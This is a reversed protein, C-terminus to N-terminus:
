LKAVLHPLQLCEIVMVQKSTKTATSASVNFITTSILMCM